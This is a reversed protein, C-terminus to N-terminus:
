GLTARALSFIEKGKKKQFKKGGHVHIPNKNNKKEKRKKSLQFSSGRRNKRLLFFFLLYQQNCKFTKVFFGRNNNNIM